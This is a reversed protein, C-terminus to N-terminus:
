EHQNHENEEEDHQNSEAGTLVFPRDKWITKGSRPLKPSGMQKWVWEIALYGAFLVMATGFGPLVERFRTPRLMPHKRWEEGRGFPGDFHPVSM